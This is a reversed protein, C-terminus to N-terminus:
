IEVMNRLGMSDGIYQVGNEQCTMEQLNLNKPSINNIEGKERISSTTLYMHAICLIKM